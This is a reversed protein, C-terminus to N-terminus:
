FDKTSMTIRLKTIPDRRLSDVPVILEASEDKEIAKHTWRGTVRIQVSGSAIKEEGNLVELLVSVIKDHVEGPNSIVVNVHVKVRGDSLPETSMRLGSRWTKSRKSYDDRISLGDCTFRGIGHYEPITFRGTKWPKKNEPSWDDRVWLSQDAPAFAAEIVMPSHFDEIPLAAADGQKATQATLAAASLFAFLVATPKM